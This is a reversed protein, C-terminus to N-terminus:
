ISRNEVTRKYLDRRLELSRFYDIKKGTPTDVYAWTDSLLRRFEARDAHSGSIHATQALEECLGKAELQNEAKSQFERREQEEEKEIRAKKEDWREGRPSKDEEPLGLLNRQQAKTLVPTGSKAELWQFKSKFHNVADVMWKVSFEATWNSKLIDMFYQQNHETAAMLPFLEPQRHCFELIIQNKQEDTQQSM